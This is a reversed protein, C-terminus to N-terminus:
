CGRGGIGRTGRSTRRKAMPTRLVADVASWTTDFRGNVATPIRSLVLDLRLRGALLRAREPNCQDQSTFARM